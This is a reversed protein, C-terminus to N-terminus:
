RSQLRLDRGEFKTFNGGRLKMTDSSPFHPTAVTKNKVEPNIAHLPSTAGVSKKERNRIKFNKKHIDYLLLNTQKKL